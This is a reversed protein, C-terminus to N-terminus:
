DEAQAVDSTLEVSNTDSQQPVLLKEGSAEGTTSPADRFSWCSVYPKTLATVVRGRAMGYAAYQPYYFRGAKQKIIDLERKGATIVPVHESSTMRDIPPFNFLPIRRALSATTLNRPDNDSKTVVKGAVRCVAAGYVKEACFSEKGYPDTFRLSFRADLLMAISLRRNGTNETANWGTATPVGTRLHYADPFDSRSNITTSFSGVDPQWKPRPPVMGDPIKCQVSDTALFSVLLPLQGKFCSFEEGPWIFSESTVQGNSSKPFGKGTVNTLLGDYLKGRESCHESENYKYPFYYEDTVTNYMSHSGPGLPSRETGTLSLHYSEANFCCAVSRCIKAVHAGYTLSPLQIDGYSSKSWDGWGLLMWSLQLFSFEPLSGAVPISEPAGDWFNVKRGYPGFVTELSGPLRDSKNDALVVDGDEKILSVDKLPLYKCAHVGAWYVAWDWDVRAGLRHGLLANIEHDFRSLRAYKNM